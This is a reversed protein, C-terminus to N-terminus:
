LEWSYIRVADGIGSIKLQVSNPMPTIARFVLEGERHHGGSAAGDWALPAYENSKDDVLVAAKTMDMALETTHTDMTVAFRWESSRLDIPTVSVVIDAEDSTKTEGAAAPSVVPALQEERTGPSSREQTVVLFGMAVIAAVLVVALAIKLKM